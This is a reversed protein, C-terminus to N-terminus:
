LLLVSPMQWAEGGDKAPSYKVTFEFHHKRVNGIVNVLIEQQRLIHLSRRMARKDLRYRHTCDISWQGHGANDAEKWLALLVKCTFPAETIRRWSEGPLRLSGVERWAILVSECEEVSWDRIMQASILTMDDDDDGDDRTETTAPKPDGIWEVGLRHRIDAMEEDATWEGHGDGRNVPEREATWELAEQLARIVEPLIRARFSIGKRTAIMEDFNHGNVWVRVDIVDEGRYEHRDIRITEHANKEIEIM